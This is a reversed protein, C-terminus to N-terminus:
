SCLRWQSGELTSCTGTRADAAGTYPMDHVPAVRRALAAHCPTFNAIAQLLVTGVRVVWLPSAIIDLSASFEGVTCTTFSTNVSSCRAANRGIDAQGGPVISRVTTTPQSLSPLGSTVVM